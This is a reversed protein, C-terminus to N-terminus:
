SAFVNTKCIFILRVFFQFSFLFSLQKSVFKCLFLQEFALFFSSFFVCSLLVIQLEPLM